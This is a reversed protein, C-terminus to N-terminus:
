ALQLRIVRIGYAERPQIATLCILMILRFNVQTAILM